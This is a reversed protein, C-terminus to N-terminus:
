TVQLGQSLRDHCYGWRTIDAPHPNAGREDPEHRPVTFALLGHGQSARQATSPSGVALM